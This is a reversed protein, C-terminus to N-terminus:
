KVSALECNLNKGIIEWDYHTEVFVRALIRQQEFMAKDALLDLIAKAFEEPNDALRIHRGDELGLGEAGIATSVVPSGMSMAELIKLRTGSGSLLPVVLLISERYYSQVEEVPGIFRISPDAKMTIYMGPTNLKGIVTLTIDPRAKKVLPFVKEYFWTLGEHNPTYDLTGCFLLNTLTHKESNLDFPRSATDVGNPVVRVILKGDNLKELKHQDAKSCAFCLSVTQHLNEEVALASAAYAKLEPKKEIGYLQHWLESDVNHADYLQRVGPALRGVQPHLVSFCELNEYLVFDFHNEALLRKITPFTQLLYLNGRERLSRKLIRSNVANAIRVPFLNFVTRYGPAGATSIVKVSNPFEPLVNRFFDTQPQVTLLTVNNEKALERLLYFCRLAGGYYPPYFDYPIIVLIEIM